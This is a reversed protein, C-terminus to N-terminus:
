EYYEGKDHQEEYDEIYMNCMLAQDYRNDMEEKIFDNEKDDISIIYKQYERSSTSM